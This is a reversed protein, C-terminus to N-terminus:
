LGGSVDLISGTVYSAQKSALWMIAYAVEIAEGARQMPILHERAQVRDPVGSLAHIDTNIIGPRVANVRIKEKALEKALGITMTDIAGKSAAYDVYENASGLRAAISSINIINGGQGGQRVSLRKIAERACLFYSGVNLKFLKDVTPYDMEVIPMLRHTIGANNILVTLTGEAKDIAEFLRLVDAEEAVDAQVAFAEGGSKNIERVVEDAAKQNSLYNVCVRYGQQGALIATARGIGRSAGTILCINDSM